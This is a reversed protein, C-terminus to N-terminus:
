TTIFEYAAGVSDLDEEWVGVLEVSLKHQLTNGDLVTFTKKLTPHSQVTGVYNGGGDACMSHFAQILKGEDYNFLPETVSRQEM